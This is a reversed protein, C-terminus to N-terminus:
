GQSPSNLTERGIQAATIGAANTLACVNFYTAATMVANAGMGAEVLFRVHDELQMGTEEAAATWRKHQVPSLEIRVIDADLLRSVLQDVTSKRQRALDMLRKHNATSVRVTM